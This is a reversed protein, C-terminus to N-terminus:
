LTLHSSSEVQGKKKRQQEEETHMYGEPNMERGWGEGADRDFPSPEGSTPSGVHARGEKGGGVFIKIFVAILDSWPPQDLTAPPFLTQNQYNFFSLEIEESASASRAKETLVKAYTLFLVQPYVGQWLLQAPPWSVASM